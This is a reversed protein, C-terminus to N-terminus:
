CSLVSALYYVLKKRLLNRSLKERYVETKLNLKLESIKGGESLYTVANLKSIKEQNDGDMYLDISITAKDFAPNKLLHIRRRVRYEIAYGGVNSGNIKTIGYEALVVAPTSSDIAYSKASLMMQTVPPFRSDPDEQATVNMTEACLLLLLLIKM